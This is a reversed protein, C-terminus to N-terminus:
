LQLKVRNDSDMKFAPKGLFPCSACRFADGLGCSGCQSKVQLVDGDQLDDIKVREASEADALGCTCNKCAKKKGLQSPGCDSASSTNGIIPKFQERELIADEDEYEDEDDDAANFKWASHQGEKSEDAVKLVNTNTNNTTIPKRNLKAVSGASWSPKKCVIKVTSGGSEDHSSSDSDVKVDIFGAYILSTDLKMNAPVYATLIGDTQLISQLSSLFAPSYTTDTYLTISHYYEAGGPRPTSTSTITDLNDTSIIDTNIDSSQQHHPHNPKTIILRKTPTTM